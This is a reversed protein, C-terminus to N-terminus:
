ISVLFPSEWQESTFDNTYIGAQILATVYPDFWNNQNATNSIKMKLADAILKIFEAHTVSKDPKFSGDEYGDVYGKTVAASVSEKSWHAEIDTFSKAAQAEVAATEGFTTFSAALVAAALVGFQEAPTKM